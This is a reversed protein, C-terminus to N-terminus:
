NAVHRAGHEYIQSIWITMWKGHQSPNKSEAKGRAVVYGAKKAARAVGGWAGVAPPQDLGRSYAYDRVDETMFSPHITAYLKFYALADDAWGPREQEAHAAARAIGRDALDRGTAHTFLDTMTKGETEKLKPHTSIAECSTGRSAWLKRWWTLM